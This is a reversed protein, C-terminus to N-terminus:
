GRLFQGVYTSGVTIMWSNRAAENWTGPKGVLVTPRHSAKAAISKVDNYRKEISQFLTNGTEESGVMLAALKMLESRGLPTEEGPDSDFFLRAQVKPDDALPGLSRPEVLLVDPFGGPLDHLRYYIPRNSPAVDRDFKFDVDGGCSTAEGRLSLDMPLQDAFFIDYSLTTSPEASAEGKTLVWAGGADVWGPIANFAKDMMSDLPETSNTPYICETEALM